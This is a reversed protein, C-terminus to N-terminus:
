QIALYGKKKYPFCNMIRQACGAALHFFVNATSYFGNIAIAKIIDNGIIVRIVYRDYM